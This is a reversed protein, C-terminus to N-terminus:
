QTSSSTEDTCPIITFNWKGLMIPIPGKMVAKKFQTQKACGKFIPINKSESDNLLHICNEADVPQNNQYCNKATCKVKTNGDLDEYFTKEYSICSNKPICTDDTEADEVTSEIYYKDRYQSKFTTSLPQLLIIDTKDKPKLFYKEVTTATTHIFM